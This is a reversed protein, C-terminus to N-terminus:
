KHEIFYKRIKDKVKYGTKSGDLVQSLYADSVGVEKALDKQQLGMRRLESRVYIGFELDSM